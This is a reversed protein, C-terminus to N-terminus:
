GDRRRHWDYEHAPTPGADAPRRYEDTGDYEHSVCNMVWAEENGLAMWGHAFGPAISVRIPGLAADLVWEVTDARPDLVDHTCVLVRGRVVFFRDTQENHLHWAKVVGPATASIYVQAINGVKSARAVEVLGGRADLKWDCRVARCFRKGAVDGVTRLVHEAPVNLPTTAWPRYGQATFPPERRDLM